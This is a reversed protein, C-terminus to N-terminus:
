PCLLGLNGQSLKGNFCSDDPSPFLTHLQHSLGLHPSLLGPDQEQRQWWGALHGFSPSSCFEQAVTDDKRAGVEEQNM